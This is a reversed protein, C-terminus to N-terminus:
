RFFDYIPNQPLPPLLVIAAAGIAVFVIGLFVSGSISSERRGDFDTNSRSRFAGEVLLMVATLALAPWGDLFEVVTMSFSTWDGGSARALILGCGLLYSGFRIGAGIDREVTIREIVGTVKHVLVGLLLLAATGLGGAFVVCWWGPGDGTNAGGYILALALFGGAYAFLAASNNNGIVDDRWSLDWFRRMAWDSVYFWGIGMLLYFLVYFGVVDFSAFYCLIFYVLSFGIPPLLALCIRLGVGREGPWAKLIPPYWARAFRFSLWVCLIFVIIELEYM